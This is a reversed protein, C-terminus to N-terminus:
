FLQEQGAEARLEEEKVKTGLELLHELVVQAHSADLFADGGGVAAIRQVLEDSIWFSVRTEDADTYEFLAVQEITILRSM